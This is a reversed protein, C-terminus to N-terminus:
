DIKADARVVKFRIYLGVDAFVFDAADPFFRVTGSAEVLIATSGALMKDAGTSFRRAVTTVTCGTLNYAAGDALLQYDVPATQGEVVFLAM